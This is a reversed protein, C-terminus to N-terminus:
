LREVTRKARLAVVILLALLAGVAAAVLLAVPSAGPLAAATRTSTADLRETSPSDTTVLEGGAVAVDPIPGVAPAPSPAPVSAVASPAAPAPGPTASQTGASRFPTGAGTTGGSATRSDSTTSATSRSATATTTTTVNEDRDDADDSRREHRAGQQECSGEGSCDDARATTWPAATLALLAIALVRAPVRTPRM